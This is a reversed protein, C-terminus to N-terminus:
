LLRSDLNIPYNSPSGQKFSPMHVTLTMALTNIYLSESDDFISSGKKKVTPAVREFHFHM